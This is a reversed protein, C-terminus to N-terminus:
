GDDTAEALWQTVSRGHAAWTFIDPLAATVRTVDDAKAVIAVGTSMMIRMSGSAFLVLSLVESGTQGDLDAPHLKAGTIPSGATASWSGTVEVCLGSNLEIRLATPSAALHNVMFHRANVIWRDELETVITPSM